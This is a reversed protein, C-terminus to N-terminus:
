GVVCFCYHLFHNTCFNVLVIRGSVLGVINILYLLLLAICHLLLFVQTCCYGIYPHQPIRQSIRLM